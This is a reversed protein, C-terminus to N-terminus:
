GDIFSKLESHIKQIVKTDVIQGEYWAGTIWHKMFMYLTDRGKNSDTIKRGFSENSRYLSKAKAVLADALTRDNTVSDAVCEPILCKLDKDMDGTYSM